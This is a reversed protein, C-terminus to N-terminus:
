GYTKQMLQWSGDTKMNKAIIRRRVAPDRDLGEEAMNVAMDAEWIIQFDHGNNKAPTHHGGIIYAVREAVAAAEGYRSMIARALPPGEQEQYPGAASQYKAEAAKIGIDHLIATITIIRRETEPVAEVAMIEEAAALVKEAHRIRRADAGFHEHLAKLYWARYDKTM